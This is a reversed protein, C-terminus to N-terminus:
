SLKVSSSQTQSLKVSKSRIIVKVEKESQRYAVHSMQNFYIGLEFIQQYSIKNIHNSNQNNYINEFSSSIYGSNFDM